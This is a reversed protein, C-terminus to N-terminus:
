RVDVNFKVTSVKDNYRIKVAVNWAGSMSFNIPAVFADGNRTADSKYNMAPMGPMAPMGYDVRVKADAVPAGSQDKIVVTVTNDGMAPPNKDLTAEVALGNVTKQVMYESGMAPVALTLAIVLSLIYALYRM